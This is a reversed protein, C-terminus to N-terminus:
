ALGRRERIRQRRERRARKDAALEALRDGKRMRREIGAEAQEYSTGPSDALIIWVRKCRRCQVHPLDDKEGSPGPRGELIDVDDQPGYGIMMDPMHGQSQCDDAYVAARLEDTIEIDM